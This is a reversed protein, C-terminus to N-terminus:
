SLVVDLNGFVVNIDIIVQPQMDGTYNKYIYHGFTITTEDPLQTSGCATNVKVMTPVDKNIILTGNGFVVRVEIYSEAQFPVATLDITGQGFIVNYKKYTSSAHTSEKAFIINKTYSSAHQHGQFGLLKIGMYIFFFACLLRFLPISIGFITKILISLGCLILLIGWFLTNFLINLM